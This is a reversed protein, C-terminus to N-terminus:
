MLTIANSQQLHKLVTQRASDANHANLPDIQWVYGSANTKKALAVPLVILPAVILVKGAQRVFDRRSQYKNKGEEM